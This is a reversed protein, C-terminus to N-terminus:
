KRYFSKLKSHWLLMGVPYYSLFLYIIFWSLDSQMSTYILGILLYLLSVVTNMLYMKKTYQIKNPYLETYYNNLLAFIIVVPISFLFSFLMYLASLILLDLDFKGEFIAFFLSNLLSGTIITVLWLGVIQKNDM